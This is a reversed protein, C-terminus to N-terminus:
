DAWVRHQKADKKTQDDSPNSMSNERGNPSRANEIFGIKTIANYEQTYMSTWPFWNQRWHM